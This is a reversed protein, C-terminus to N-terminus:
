MWVEKLNVRDSARSLLIVVYNSSLMSHSFSYTYAKPQNKHISQTKKERQDIIGEKVFVMVGLEIKNELLMNRLVM